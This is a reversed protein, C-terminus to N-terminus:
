HAIPQVTSSKALIMGRLERAIVRRVSDSTQPHEHTDYWLLLTDRFSGAGIQQCLQRFEERTGRRTEAIREYNGRGASRRLVTYSAPLTDNSPPLWVIAVGRQVGFAWASPPTQANSSLACLFMVIAVLLMM